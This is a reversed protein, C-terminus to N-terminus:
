NNLSLKIHLSLVENPSDAWTLLVFLKSRVCVNGKGVADSSGFVNGEGVANSFVFVIGEGAVDSLVSIDGDSAVLSTPATFTLESSSETVSTKSSTSLEGNVSDTTILPVLVGGGQRRVLLNLPLPISFTLTSNVAVETKTFLSLILSLETNLM